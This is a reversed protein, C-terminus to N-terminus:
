SVIAQQEILLAVVGSVIGSSLSFSVAPWFSRLLYFSGMIVVFLYLTNTYFIIFTTAETDAINNKKWLIHEDKEKGSLKKLEPRSDLEVNVEQM